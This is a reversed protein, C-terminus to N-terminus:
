RQMIELPCIQMDGGTAYFIGYGSQNTKIEVEANPAIKFQPEKSISWILAHAVIIALTLKVKLKWVVLKRWNM